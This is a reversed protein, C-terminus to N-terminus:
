VFGLYWWSLEIFDITKLLIGNNQAAILVEVEEKEVLRVMLKDSSTGYM